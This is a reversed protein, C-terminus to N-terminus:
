ACLKTLKATNTYSLTWSVLVKGHSMVYKKTFFNNLRWNKMLMCTNYVTLFSISQLKLIDYNWIAMTSRIEVCFWITSFFLRKKSFCFPFDSLPGYLYDWKQSIFAEKTLIKIYFVATYMMKHLFFLWIMMPSM